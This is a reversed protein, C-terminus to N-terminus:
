KPSVVLLPSWDTSAHEIVEKALLKNTETMEPEQPHMVTHYTSHHRHTTGPNTLSVWIKPPVVWGHPGYWIVPVQSKIDRISSTCESYTQSFQMEGNWHQANRKDDERKFHRRHDFHRANDTKCRGLPVASVIKHLAWKNIFNMLLAEAYRRQAVIIGKLLHMEM